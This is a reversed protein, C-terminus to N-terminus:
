FEHFTTASSSSQIRICFLHHWLDTWFWEDHRDVERFVGPVAGDASYVRQWHFGVPFSSRRILYSGHFIPLTDKESFWSLVWRDSYDKLRPVLNAFGLIVVRGHLAMLWELGALSFRRSGHQSFTIPQLCDRAANRTVVLRLPVIVAQIYYTFSARPTLHRSLKFNKRFALNHKFDFRFPNGNMWFKSGYWGPPNRSVWPNGSAPVLSYPRWGSSQLTLPLGAPTISGNALLM